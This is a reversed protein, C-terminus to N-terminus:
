YFVCQDRYELAKEILMMMLIM